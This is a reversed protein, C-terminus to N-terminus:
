FGHKQKYELLWEYAYKVENKWGVASKNYFEEGGYREWNERSKESLSNYDDPFYNLLYDLAENITKDKEYNDDLVGFASLIHEAHHKGLGDITDIGLFYEAHCKVCSCPICVCDGVHMDSLAEVMMELRETAYQDIYSTNGDKLRSANLTNDFYSLKDKAKEISFKPSDEKLYMLAYSINNELQELKIKYWIERKEEESLIIETRLPNQNYKIKM